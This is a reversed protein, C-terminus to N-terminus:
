KDEKIMSRVLQCLEVFQKRSQRSHMPNLLSNEGDQREKQLAVLLGEVM